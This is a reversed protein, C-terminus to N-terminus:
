AAGKEKHIQLFITNVGTMEFKGETPKIMEHSYQGLWSRFQEYKKNAMEKIRVSCIAVLTGGPKLFDFAYQVHRCEDSFPPNMLVADYIPQPQCTFLDDGILHYEKLELLERFNCRCEICDVSTTIKRVEDAIAGIGAEPELVRSTADIDALEILQQAMAQPTFQIDGEQYLRASFTLDRIRKAKPDPPTTARKLLEDFTDVAKHLGYIEHIGAKKLRGAVTSDDQPFSFCPDQRQHEEFYKKRSHYSRIDEYFAGTVLAQELPTLYRSQTESLLFELLQLQTRYRDIQADRRRQEEQRKWTNTLYNGSLSAIKKQLGATQKEIKLVIGSM